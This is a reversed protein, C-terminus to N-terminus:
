GLVSGEVLVPASTRRLGGVGRVETMTLGWRGRGDWGVPRWTETWFRPEAGAVSWPREEAGEFVEGRGFAALSPMWWREDSLGHGCNPCVLLEVRGAVDERVLDWADPTWFPDNGGSLALCPVTLGGINELPDVISLLARGSETEVLDQLGRRSYDETMPSYGGWLARQRESQRVMGLSDFVRPAIGVVEPWGMLGVLWSTWGRKSAGTVTFSGGRQEAGLVSLALKVAGVMPMLALDAAAESGLFGEFTEALLDDEILGRVPQNPVDFLIAVDMGSAASLRQAWRIDRWNVDWGTVELFMRGTGGEGRILVLHFTQRRGLFEGGELVWMELDRWWGRRSTGAAAFGECASKFGAFEKTM